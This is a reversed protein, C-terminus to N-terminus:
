HKVSFDAEFETAHHLLAWVVRANKHALAVVTKNFGTRTQLQLAWRSYADKKQGLRQVVSRAGHILLARLYRDGRKSIGLLRTQNGSSHQKPVLGLWGSLQRSQTFVEAKGISAVLATSTLPGIGPITELRQCLKNERSLKQIKEEYSKVKQVIVLYESYLEQFIARASPSLENQENALIEPLRKRFSAEGQAMVIGYEALLGRTQNTLQIRQKVLRSRVRHLLLVDQQQVTKIPVFRMSPRTVAEACAAADNVDNKNTKVYPKVYQPSMMRVEHGMEQFRRAWYHSGGCAEMGVLCKPLQAMFLALKQRSLRKRFLEKGREDCGQIQFITKALDIGIVSIDKM